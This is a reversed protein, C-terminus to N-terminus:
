SCLAKFHTLVSADSIALALFHYMVQWHDCMWCVAGKHSDLTLENSSRASQLLVPIKPLFCPLMSKAKGMPSEYSLTAMPELEAVTVEESQSLFLDKGQEGLSERDLQLDAIVM